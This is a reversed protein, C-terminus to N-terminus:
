PCTGSLSERASLTGNLDLSAGGSYIKYPDAKEDQAPAKIRAVGDKDAIGHLDGPEILIDDGPRCAAILLTGTGSVATAPPDPPRSQFAPLYSLLQLAIALEKM